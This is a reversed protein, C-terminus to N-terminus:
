NLSLQNFSFRCQYSPFDGGLQGSPLYLNKIEQRLDTCLFKGNSEIQNRADSAAIGEAETAKFMATAHDSEGMKIATQQTTSFYNVICPSGGLIYEVRLWTLLSVM